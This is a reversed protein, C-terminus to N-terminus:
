KGANVSPPTPPAVKVSAFLSLKRQSASVSASAAALTRKRSVSADKKVPRGIKKGRKERKRRGFSHSTRFKAM